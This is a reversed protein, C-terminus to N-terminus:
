YLRDVFGFNFFFFLLQSIELQVLFFSLFFILIVFILFQFISMVVLWVSVSLIRLICQSCTCSLLRSAESSVCLTRLVTQSYCDSLFFDFIKVSM